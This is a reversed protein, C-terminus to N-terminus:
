SYFVHQFIRQLSFKISQPSDCPIFEPYITNRRSDYGRVLFPAYKDERSVVFFIANGAEFAINLFTEDSNLLPIITDGIM